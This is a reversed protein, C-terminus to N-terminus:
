DLLVRDCSRADVAALAEEMRSYPLQFLRFRARAEADGRLSASACALIEADRDLGLLLGKTGITEAIARAHGGAGVTGDVVIMGPALALVELVERLLVPEHVRVPGRVEGSSGDHSDETEM